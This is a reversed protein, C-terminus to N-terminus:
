SWFLLLRSFRRALRGKDAPDKKRRQVVAAILWAIGVLLWLIGTVRQGIVLWIAAFVLTLVATVSRM